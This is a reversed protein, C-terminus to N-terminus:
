ARRALAEDLARQREVYPLSPHRRRRWRPKKVVLLLFDWELDLAPYRGLRDEFRRYFDVDIPTVTPVHTTVQLGLERVADLYESATLRNVWSFTAESGHHARYYAACVEPEFLLHPWPFFVERYRHSARPGRHLNFYLWAVGGTRLAREIAALMLLPRQVHELVASSVVVDISGPAVVEDSALDAAHFSVGDRRWEDWEPRDVIDVGIASRAGARKVALHTMEGFACGIELVDNGELKVDRRIQKLKMRARKKRGVPDTHPPTPVIPKSRYEENLREFLDLDYSPPSM